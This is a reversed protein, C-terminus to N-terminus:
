AEKSLMGTLNLSILHFIYVKLNKIKIAQDIKIISLNSSGFKRTAKNKVRKSDKRTAILGCIDM